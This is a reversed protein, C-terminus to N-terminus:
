DQMCYLHLRFQPLPNCGFNVNSTWDKNLQGTFGVRGGPNQGTATWDNCTRGAVVTGVTNTGTWVAEVSVFGGIEDIDISAQLCFPNTCDTLDAFDDAVLVGDTRRYPVSSQTVRDKADTTSDSLWSTYTGPLGGEQARLNCINDAGELGTAGGGSTKLDGSHKSSTVFVTKIGEALLCNTLGRNVVNDERMIGRFPVGLAAALVMGSQVEEKADPSSNAPIFSDHFCMVGFVELVTVYNKEDALATRPALPALVITLTIFLTPTLIYRM